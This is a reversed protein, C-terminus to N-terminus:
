KVITLNFVPTRHIFPKIRKHVEILTQKDM